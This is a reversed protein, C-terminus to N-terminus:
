IKLLTFPPTIECFLLALQPHDVFKYRLLSILWTIECSTSAMRRYGDKALFYVIGPSRADDIRAAQAARNVFLWGTLLGKSIYLLRIISTFHPHRPQDM